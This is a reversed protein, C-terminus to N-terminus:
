PLAAILADELAKARRGGLGVATGELGARAQRYEDNTMRLLSLLADPHWELLAVSQFLAGHRTRRQSVGVVKRGGLLVEGPGLGAFCVRASWESRRMAGRWAEVPGGATAEVAAAWAAGVWWAARGIDAEWLPDGAPITLDVWLTTTTGPGLLVAGGGSRRRVVDVGASAAAEVNVDREPQASGLVLAPRDPSLLRVRRKVREGPAPGGPPDPLPTQASTDHLDRALGHRREVHWHGATHVTAV